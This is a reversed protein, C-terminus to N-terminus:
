PHQNLTQLDFRGAAATLDQQYYQQSLKLLTGDQHMQQIITSLQSALRWSDKQSHKDLAGALYEVFVPEGLQKLPQGLRIQGQGLPTGTLVADLRVGDGLALDNLAPIEIDYGVIQANHVMFQLDQGPLTLTGLLYMEYTCGACVGIRKGSLDAPTTFTTNDQHVFFAAPTTYYPQTFYLQNLRDPTIAMSGVSIDWRGNWGGSILQTWTPSVFCPEVGLRRAIEVAVDVDFGELEAATYETSACRTQAPRQAGPKLASQPPYATDTAIVLVRRQLVTTLKDDPPTPTSPPRRPACAAALALVGLLM